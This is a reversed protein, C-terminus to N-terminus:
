ADGVKWREQLSEGLVNLAALMAVIVFAPALAYWPAKFLMDYGSKLLSGWSADPPQIGLGVFSLTAEVLVASAVNLVAQAIITPMVNPLIEGFIIRLRPVGVAVVGRVYDANLESLTAARLVRASLPSLLIGLVLILSGVGTGIAAVFVLGFLVVPIAMVADALRMLGEDVWRGFVASIMGWALGLGVSLAAAAISILLTLRAAHCIRGLLDRGLDDTGLPHSWSPSQLRDAVKIANVDPYLWSALLAALVMLVLVALAIV